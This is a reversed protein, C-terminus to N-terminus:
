NSENVTDQQLERLPDVDTNPTLLSIDVTARDGRSGFGQSEKTIGRCTQGQSGSPVLLCVSGVFVALVSSFFTMKWRLGVIM